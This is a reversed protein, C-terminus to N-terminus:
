PAKMGLVDSKTPAGLVKIIKVLQDMSNTGDFIPRGILMEAIVCGMSWM